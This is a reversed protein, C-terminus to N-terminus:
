DEILTFMDKNAGCLPCVWDTPLDEFKQKEESEDYIWQCVECKYKM